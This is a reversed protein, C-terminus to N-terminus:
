ANAIGERVMHAAGLWAHRAADLRAAEIPNEPPLLLSNAIQDMRGALEALAENVMRRHGEITDWDARIRAALEDTM